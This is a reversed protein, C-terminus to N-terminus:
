YGALTERSFLREPASIVAGGSTAPVAQDSLATAAGLTLVGKQIADLLKLANTQRATIGDPVTPMRRCYLRYTTLDVAIQRVIGPVPALPLTYRGRLYGDILEAADAAVADVVTENVLGSELDDTLQILDAEPTVAQLDALTCYM